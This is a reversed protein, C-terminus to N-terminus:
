KGELLQIIREQDKVRQQLAKRETECLALEHQLKTVKDTPATGAGSEDGNMIKQKM